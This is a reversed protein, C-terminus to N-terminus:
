GDGEVEDDQVNTEEAKLDAENGQASEEGEADAEQLRKVLDIYQRMAAEQTTGTMTKWSDHKARAVVNFASPRKGKCDGEQSQKYLAYLQLKVLDDPPKSLTLVEQAAEEFQEKLEESM